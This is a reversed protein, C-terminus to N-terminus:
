AETAELWARYASAARVAWRVSDTV